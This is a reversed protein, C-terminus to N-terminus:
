RFSFLMIGTTNMLTPGVLMQNLNLAQTPNM